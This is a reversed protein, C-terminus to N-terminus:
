AKEGKLIELGREAERQIADLLPKRPTLERGEACLCLISSFLDHAKRREEITVIQPREVRCQELKVPDGDGDVPLCAGNGYLYCDNNDQLPCSVCTTGKLPIQRKM